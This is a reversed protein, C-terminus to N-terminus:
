IFTACNASLTRTMHTTPHYLIHSTFSNRRQEVPRANVAAGTGESVAERLSGSPRAEEESEGVHCAEEGEPVQHNDQVKGEPRRKM